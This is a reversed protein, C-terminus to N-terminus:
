QSYNEIQGSAGARSSVCLCKGADLMSRARARDDKFGVALMCPEHDVVALVYRRKESGCFCRKIYCRKNPLM